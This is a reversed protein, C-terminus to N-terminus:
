KLYAVGSVGSSYTVVCQDLTPYTITGEIESGSSDFAILSPYKNLNHSITWVSDAIAQTHSYWAAPYTTPKNLVASWDVATGGGPIDLQQWDSVDTNGVSYYLVPGAVNIFFAGVKPPASIPPGPRTLVTVDDGLFDFAGSM